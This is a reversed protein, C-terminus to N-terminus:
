CRRGANRRLAGAEGPAARERQPPGRDGRPAQRPHRRRDRRPEGAHDATKEGILEGYLERATGFARMVEDRLKEDTMAREVYPRISEAADAVKDRTKTM